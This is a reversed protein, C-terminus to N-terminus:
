LTIAELNSGLRKIEFPIGVLKAHHQNWREQFRELFNHSKPDSTERYAPLWYHSLRQETTLRMPRNVSFLAIWDISSFIPTNDEKRSKLVQHILYMLEPPALSVGENVLLLVGKAAPFNLIQKTAKIQRNASELVRKIPREMLSVWERRCPEPTSRLEVTTRGYVRILGQRQWKQILATLKELHALTFLDNELCKLEGVVNDQRFLYDAQDPPNTTPMLKAVLEGGFSQVCDNMAQEVAIKM